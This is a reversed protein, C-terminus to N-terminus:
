TRAASFHLKNNGRRGKSFKMVRRREIGQLCVDLETERKQGFELSGGLEYKLIWQQARFETPSTASVNKAPEWVADDTLDCCCFKSNNGNSM